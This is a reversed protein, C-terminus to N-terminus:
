ILERLVEDLLMIGEDTCYFNTQNYDVLNRRKLKSVIDKYRDLFNFKFKREFSKLSFGKELRLNCIFYYELDDKLDISEFDYDRVGKLYKSLSSSNKYRINEIYGSAGVGIALYRKDQWYTLNHRSEYGKKAFNSVEYRIFGHKRLFDLIFDYYTRSVEDSVEKIGKLSFETNNELILSYTSIHNIDLKIFFDLDNKLIDLTQNPLGYILDVNVNKIYQKVLKILSFYDVNFDRNIEQLLSKNFSQIGISIRNVGNEKMIQLKLEDISEPNAEITFEYNSKLLPKLAGLLKRLENNTLISPTGGGIYITKFKANLNSLFSIDKLIEDIYRVRFTSIDLVKVFDCYPCIKKCFPIHIYLSNIRKIKSKTINM